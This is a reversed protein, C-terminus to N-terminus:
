DVYKNLLNVEDSSLNFVDIVDQNNYKKSIDVKPFSYLIANMGQGTVLRYMKCIAISMPNFLFSKLNHIETETYTSIDTMVHLQGFDEISDYIMDEKYSSSLSLALKRKGYLVPKKDTYFIKNKNVNSYVKFLGSKYEDFRNKASQDLYFLKNSTSKIREILNIFIIDKKDVLSDTYKRIDISRDKNIVEVDDGDYLKDYIWNIITVGEKFSENATYDVCRLGKQKITFKNRGDRVLTDPTHFDIIGDYDLIEMTKKTVDIYLKGADSESESNQYPPNGVAAKFKMFKTIINDSLFEAITLLNIKQNYDKILYKVINLSIQNEVVLFVNDNKFEDLRPQIESKFVRARYILLINKM